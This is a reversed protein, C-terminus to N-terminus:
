SDLFTFLGGTLRSEDTWSILGSSPATSQREPRNGPLNIDADDLADETRKSKAASDGHGNTKRTDDRSSDDFVFGADEIAQDRLLLDFDADDFLYRYALEETPLLDGLREDFFLTRPEQSVAAEAMAAEGPQLRVGVSLSDAMLPTSEHDFGLEHGFEHTIATLLDIDGEAASGPLALGDPGFESDDRPTPDVFWGHGAANHDLEIVNGNHRALVLAPLDAIVVNVDALAAQQEDSLAYAEGLRRIAEDVLPQASDIDLVPVDTEASLSPALLEKGDSIFAPDDTRIAFSQFLSHGGVSILGAQGDVTVANFAHGVVEHWTQNPGKGGLVAVSASTGQLSVRLQYEDNSPLSFTIDAVADYVIKGSKGVHGIVVQNTDPLVGAFKFRGDDYYDFIVGGLTDPSVTTQIELYSNPGVRLDFLSIAESDPLMGTGQYTGGSLQWNGQTPAFGPAGAGFTETAEFTIEPALKQVILNDVRSISDVGGLGVLGYNLGYAFGDDDIRPAYAYSLIDKGDVVLTATLGNVALLVDYDTSHKLRSPTKVLQHWGTEDVYGIELQDNSINIGAYKFDTPSIYDFILYTNAKLGGTPKGTSITATIEFYHPLYEGVHFVATATQDQISATANLPSVELRGQKVEFLGQEVAFAGPTADNFDVGRLTQRQGGPINGPQPDIPAGTQDQWLPGDKQEILGLEGHPEGNRDTDNGTDIARSPDAGIAKSLDYLFDFMHPTVARTVTFEGFPAFPVIFANFEGIWDMLRDGGTNAILVDRGAGGYARDQIDVNIPDPQDNLGGNTEHDDDMNMLDAGWGGFVQDNDPGGVIWDNGTDGFIMDEDFNDNILTPDGVGDNPDGSPDFNLLFGELLVGDGDLDVEVVGIVARPNFEDYHEFEIRTPNFRLFDDGGQPREDPVGPIVEDSTTPDDPNVPADFFWPLAEAGSMADDGAGGHLFDNGLGGFIIDNAFHPTYEDEEWDDAIGVPTLNLPTLDAQKFIEGNGTDVGNVFISPHIIYQQINGPTRIEKNLEDIELVGNLVESYDESDAPDAESKSGPGSFEAYRGTFIRGDDGLVGDMGRGGSIWDPGWGGIIDDSEGDGFLVDADMQGYIFDDGTEGHIEDAGGIDTDAGAQDYDPGGPTYDLLEIARV